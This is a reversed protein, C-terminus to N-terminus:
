LERRFLIKEGGDAACDGFAKGHHRVSASSMFYMGCFVFVHWLQHSAGFLDVAGSSCAIEPFRSIYFALGGATICYLTLIDFLREQVLEDYFGKERFALAWHALPVAAYFSLGLFTRLGIDADPGMRKLKPWRSAAALAFVATTAALHLM